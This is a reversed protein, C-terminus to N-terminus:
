GCRNDVSAFNLSVAKAERPELEIEGPAEIEVLGEAADTAVQLGGIALPADLPNRAVLEFYFTEGVVAEQKKAQVKAGAPRYGGVSPVLERELETWVGSGGDEAAISDREVVRVRAGEAEFVRVPLGLGREAVM